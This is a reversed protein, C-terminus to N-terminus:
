IRLKQVSLPNLNDDNKHCKSNVQLWFDIENQMKRYIRSSFSSELCSIIRYNISENCFIDFDQGYEFITIAWFQMFTISIIISM